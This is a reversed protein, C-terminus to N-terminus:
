KLIQAKKNEFEQQTIIGKEKLLHLRELEEATSSDFSKRGSNRRANLYRVLIFILIIPIGIVIFMLLLEQSRLNGM